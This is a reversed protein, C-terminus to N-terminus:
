EYSITLGLYDHILGKTESMMRKETKFKDNLDDILKDLICPEVHSCKHDDPHFQVTFQEGNVMKNFTCRDYDNAM